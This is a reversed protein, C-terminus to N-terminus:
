YKIVYPNVHFGVKRYFCMSRTRSVGSIYMMMMRLIFGSLQAGSREKLSLFGSETDALLVQLPLIEAYLLIFYLIIFFM